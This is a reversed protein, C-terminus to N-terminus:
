LLAAGPVTQRIFNLYEASQTNAFLSTDGVGCEKLFGSSIIGVIGIGNKGAFIAPGGSDGSCHNSGDGGFSSILHDTTVDSVRMEGSRLAGSNGNEDLGFGFIKVVDGSEVSSSVMLPVTPLGANSGLELVAVDKFLAQSTPTYGPHRFYRVGDIRRGNATISASRVEATFCHAASLVHTQTLMTGSCSAGSGNNFLLTIRVVPSDSTSCETGNIIRANLGLTECANNSLGDGGGSADNGDGGGGGCSSLFLSLAIFVLFLSRSFANKM